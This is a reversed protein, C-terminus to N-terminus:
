PMAAIFLEDAAFPMTSFPWLPMAHCCLSGIIADAQRAIFFIFFPPM